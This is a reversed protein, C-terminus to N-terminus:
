RRGIALLADNLANIIAAPPPIAGGEGVGKIGSRYEPLADGPSAARHEADRRRGPLLYDALHRTAATRTM